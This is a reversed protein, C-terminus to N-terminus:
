IARLRPPWTWDVPLQTGALARRRGAESAGLVLIRDTQTARGAEAGWLQTVKRNPQVDDAVV